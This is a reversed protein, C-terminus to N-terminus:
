MSISTLSRSSARAMADLIGSARVPATSIRGTRSPRGFQPLLRRHAPYSYQDACALAGEDQGGVARALLPVDAPRVEPAPLHVVQLTRRRLRIPEVGRLGAAPEPLDDLAGVVPALAPLRHPVLEGVLAGGAGMEPIVARLPRPLERAHPMQLRRQRIRVGDVRADLVGRQEAGRVAPLVPLLEGPQALVGRSWEPLGARAPHAQVRDQEVPAMRSPDEDGDRRGAHEAAVVLALGPPRHVAAQAGLLDGIGGRLDTVAHVADGHM